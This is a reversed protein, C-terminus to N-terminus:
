RGFRFARDLASDIARRYERVIRSRTRKGVEDAAGVAVREPASPAQPDAADAELELATATGPSEPPEGGTTPEASTACAACACVSLLLLSRLSM